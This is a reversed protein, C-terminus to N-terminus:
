FFFDGCSDPGKVTIKESKESKECLFYNNKNYQYCTYLLQNINKKELFIM